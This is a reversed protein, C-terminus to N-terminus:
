GQEALVEDILDKKSLEAHQPFMERLEKVPTGRLEDESLLYDGLSLDEGEEEEPIAAVEALPYKPMRSDARADGVFRVHLGQEDRWVSEVRSDLILALDGDSLWEIVSEDTVTVIRHVGYGDMESATVPDADPFQDEIQRILTKAANPIRM